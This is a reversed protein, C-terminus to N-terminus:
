SRACMYRSDALFFLFRAEPLWWLFYLSLTETNCGLGFTWHREQFSQTICGPFLLLWSINQCENDGRGHLKKANETFSFWFPSLPCFLGAVDTNYWFLLFQEIFPFTSSSSFARTWTVPFEGQARSLGLWSRPCHQGQQPPQLIGSAEEQGNHVILSSCWFIRQKGM